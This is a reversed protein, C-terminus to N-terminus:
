LAEDIEQESLAEESLQCSDLGTDLKMDDLSSSVDM